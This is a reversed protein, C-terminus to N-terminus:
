ISAFINIIFFKNSGKLEETEGAGELGKQATEVAATRGGARHFSVVVLHGLRRRM